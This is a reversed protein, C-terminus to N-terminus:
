EAEIVPVWKPTGGDVSLVHKGSNPANSLYDDALKLSQRVGAAMKDRTIAADAAVDDNKIQDKYALAGLDGLENNITNFKNDIETKNYVDGTEVFEGTPSVKGDAGVVLARGALATGQDIDVKKALKDDINDGVQTISNTVNTVKTDVEDKTYFDGTPKVSGDNGVVLAKGAYGAGQNKDLKTDLGEALENRINAIEQNLAQNMDDLGLQNRLEEWTILTQWGTDGTYRWLLGDNNVDMEVERGDTIGMDEKIKEVDLFLEDGEITIYTSDKLADQKDSELKVVDSELKDLRGNLDPLNTISSVSKPVGIYKGVSLRPASAARNVNGTGASVASPQTATAMNATATATPQASVTATPRAAGTARLSGARANMTANAANTASAASEYAGTGGVSRVSAAAFAGTSVTAVCLISLLSTKIGERM